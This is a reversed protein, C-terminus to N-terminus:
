AKVSRMDAIAKGWLETEGIANVFAAFDDLSMVVTTNGDGLDLTVTFARRGRLLQVTYGVVANADFRWREEVLDGNRQTCSCWARTM